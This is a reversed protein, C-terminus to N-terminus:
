RESNNMAGHVIRRKLALSARLSPTIAPRLSASKRAIRPRSRRKQPRFCTSSRRTNSVILSDLNSRPLRAISLNANQSERSLPTSVNNSKTASCTFSPNKCLNTKTSVANHRSIKKIKLHRTSPSKRTVIPALERISSKFSGRKPAVPIKERRAQASSILRDKARCGTLRMATRVTSAILRTTALATIRM